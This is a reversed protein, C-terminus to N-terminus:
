LRQHPVIWVFMKIAFALRSILNPNNSNLAHDLSLYTLYHGENLFNFNAFDVSDLVITLETSFVKRELLKDKFFKYHLHVVSSSPWIASQCHLETLFVSITHFRHLM